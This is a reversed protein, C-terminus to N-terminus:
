APRASRTRNDVFVSDRGQGSCTKNPPLRMSSSQPAHAELGVRLVVGLLLTLLVPPTPIKPYPRQDRVTRLQRGLGFVKVIYTLFQALQNM